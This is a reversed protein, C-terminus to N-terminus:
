RNFLFSFILSQYYWGIILAIGRLVLAIIACARGVRADSRHMGNGDAKYNGYYVLSLVGFIVPFVFLALIGFLKCNKAASEGPDWPVEYPRYVYPADYYPGQWGGPGYDPPSQRYEGERNDPPTQYAPGYDPPSQTDGAPYTKEKKESM